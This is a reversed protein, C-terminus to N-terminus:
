PVVETAQYEHTRMRIVQDADRTCGISLSDIRQLEGAPGGLYTIGVVDWPELWPRAATIVETKRMEASSEYALAAAAADAQAQDPMVLPDIGRRIDGRVVETGIRQVSVPSDPRTDIWRGTVVTPQQPQDEVFTVAISNYALEHDVTYNTVNGGDGVTLQDVPNALDADDIDAVHFVRTAPNQLAFAGASLCLELVVDWPSGAEIDYDLRVDIPLTTVNGTIDLVATPFTRRILNAIAEAYTGIGLDVSGRAMDDLDIRRTQDSAALTWVNEPRAIAAATMDCDAVTIWSGPTIRYQARLRRGMPLYLQDIPGPQATTPVDFAMDCRGRTKNISGDVFPVEPVLVSGDANLIDLRWQPEHHSQAAALWAADPVPIM